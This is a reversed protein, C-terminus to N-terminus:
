KRCQQVALREASHTRAICVESIKYASCSNLAEVKVAADDGAGARVRYEAM